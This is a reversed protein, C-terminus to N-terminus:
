TRIKNRLCAKQLSYDTGLWETCSAIEEQARNPLFTCWRIDIELLDGLLRELETELVLALNLEATEALGETEVEGIDRFVGVLGVGDVKLIGFDELVM